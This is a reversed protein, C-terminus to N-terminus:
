KDHKCSGHLCKAAYLIQEYPSAWVGGICGDNMTIQKDRICGTCDPMTNQKENM